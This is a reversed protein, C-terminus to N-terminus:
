HITRNLKEIFGARSKTNEFVAQLRSKEKKKKIKQKTKAQSFDEWTAQMRVLLYDMRM